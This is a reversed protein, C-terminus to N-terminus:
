YELISSLNGEFIHSLKEDVRGSGSCKGCTRNRKYESGFLGKKWYYIKGSGGCSGCKSRCIVILKKGEGLCHACTEKHRRERRYEGFFGKGYEVTTCDLKGAGGCQECKENQVEFRVYIYGTGRRLSRSYQNHGSGGCRHCGEDWPLRIFLAM